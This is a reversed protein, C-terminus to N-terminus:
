ELLKVSAANVEAYGVGAIVSLLANLKVVNDPSSVVVILSM